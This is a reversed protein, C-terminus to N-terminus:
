EADEDDEEDDEVVVDEGNDFISRFGFDGDNNFDGDSNFNVASNLFDRNANDYDEDDGDDEDEDDYDEDDEDDYDYEDEEDEDGYGYDLYDKANDIVSIFVTCGYDDLGLEVLTKYQEKTIEKVKVKDIFSSSSDYEMSQNTGVGFCIDTSCEADYLLADFNDMFNKYERESMERAVYGQVEFEDSYSDSYECLVYRKNESM